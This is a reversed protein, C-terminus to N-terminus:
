WFRRSRRKWRDLRAEASLRELEKNPGSLWEQFDHHDAVSKDFCQRRFIQRILGLRRPELAVYWVLGVSFLLVGIGAVPTSDFFYAAVFLVVVGLASLGLAVPRYKM